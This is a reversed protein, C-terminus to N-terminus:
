ARVGGAARAVEVHLRSQVRVADPVISGSRNTVESLRAALQLHADNGSGVFIPQNLCIDSAAFSGAGACLILRSPADESALMVVGPSVAEPSVMALMDPPMTNETMATAAVPVLANVHIGNKAGEIALSQMLGIVGAKAAGYSTQGFNGFLGSGSSTMIIRGYNQQQMVEWVAKCCYVAGMLHVEIVARFDDLDIKGFSRDRLFGANNVLIDIRGWQSIVREAMAQVADFDSVSAAHAIAEGGSEVIELTVSEAAAAQLDNVVVRAGQKALAIAHSRGLGAGAGTVIAVRGELLGTM